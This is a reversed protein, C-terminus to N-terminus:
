NSSPEDARSFPKCDYGLLGSQHSTTNNSRWDINPLNFDGALVFMSRRHKNRVATVESIANNTYEMDTRNPPRYFGGIVLERKDGLKVKGAILETTQSCHTQTIVLDGKAAILVGGHPDKPRDRRIVDFGLEPPFIEQNGIKESVM